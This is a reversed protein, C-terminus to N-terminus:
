NGRQKAISFALMCFGGAIMTAEIGLLELMGLMVLAFGALGILDFIFSKMMMM